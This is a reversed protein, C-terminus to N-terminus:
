CVAARIGPSQCHSVFLVSGSVKANIRLAIHLSLKVVMFAWFSPTMNQALGTIKEGAVERTVWLFGDTGLLTHDTQETGM